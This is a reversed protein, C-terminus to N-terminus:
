DKKEVMNNHIALAAKVLGMALAAGCGDGVQLGLALLPIKSIKELAERHSGSNELQGAICHDLTAPHIAYLIAAAATSTYGDLIVPVNQLRAALIAGAIASIERGGLRALIELPDELHGKHLKLAKEILSVRQNFVDEDVELERVVWKEVPGGYLATFIAASSLSSGRGVAGLALLDIDGAVAEMGYAMTAVCAKEDLASEQSFDKTPIETALDFVRFGLDYASCIQNVDSVNDSFADLMEQNSPSGNESINHAEIGHSAVFVCVFPRIFTPPYHHQWTAVWEAIWELRGHSGKVKSLKQDKAHAKLRSVADPGPISIIMRRIDQFPTTENSLM